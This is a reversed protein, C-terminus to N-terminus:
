KIVKNIKSLDITSEKDFDALVEIIYDGNDWVILTQKYTTDSFDICLATGGDLNVEELKNHETNYNPEFKTKVWQRLAITQKTLSNMYLTYYYVSSIDTEEVEFGSPVNMLAYKYEITQPCDKYNKATVQTYDHYVTGHFNSSVYVVVWGVLFSAFIIVILAFFLQRSLRYRPKIDTIQTTTTTENVRLKRVNKEYRAFIRKMAIRHKLSFKHDPTNDIDAYESLVARELISKFIEENM